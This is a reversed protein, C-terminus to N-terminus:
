QLSIRKRRGRSADLSLFFTQIINCTCSLFFQLCTNLHQLSKYMYLSMHSVITVLFFFHQSPTAFITVHSGNNSYHAYICFISETPPSMGMSLSVNATVKNIELDALKIKQFHEYSHTCANMPTFM